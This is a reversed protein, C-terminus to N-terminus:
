DVALIAEMMRLSQLNPLVEHVRHLRVGNERAWATIATTPMSRRALDPTNLLSGIFSKRSVGLLAPRDEPVLRPLARLLALNHRVTKGFGIGPDYVLTEPDLGASTLQQHRSRFYARVEAVVDEYQPAQQMTRPSGQMHMIVAGAGHEGVAAVMDPDGELGTIDNVIAAGERLAARAVSAKVTDISVLTEPRAALLAAIVPIVRRQEEEASVAVAGPRSSEGGVDIIAAGADLMSLATQLAIQPNAHCGGDSFSDPTANLIGMIAGERTLDLRHHRCRWFM